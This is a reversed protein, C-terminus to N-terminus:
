KQEYLKKLEDLTINKEQLKANEKVFNIVKNEIVREAFRNRDDESELNKDIFSNMHEDSLSSLPLGYQLFRAETFRRSEARLEENSIKFDQEKAIKTKVLQWITDKEFLPYENELIEDTLKGEKDTAKLWKKLFKEPLAVNLKKLITEKVDIGFRYESEDKYVNEINEKIKSIFEDESKITDSGFIKDYLEQNLESPVYDTIESVLFQFYPEITNAQEKEIKLIGAIETNNPFAKKIDFNVTEDKKIAIFKKKEKEDKIIDVAIMTQESFLGNEVTNGISDIQIINGKLYSKESVSESKEPKSFQNKYRDIEKNVAEDDVKINYFPISIKDNVAIDIAPSLGIDFLFEHEKDNLIDIPQQEDSPLPQGLIELNENILYDSLSDSVLKDVEQITIQNGVLKKIMSIPAKGPRFGKIQAKKRYDNLGKLVLPEYDEANINLSILANLNDKETKTINM